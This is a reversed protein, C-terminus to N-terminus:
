PRARRKGGHSQWCRAPLRRCRWGPKCRRPLRSPLATCDVTCSLLTAAGWDWRESVMARAENLALDAQGHAFLRECFRAMLIRATTVQLRERMALVLPVGAEVLAQALPGFSDFAARAASECAALVILRPPSALASVAQVLRATTVPDVKGDDDELYLVAGAPTVRGHCLLYAVDAEAWAATLAALVPSQAGSIFATEACEPRDFLSQAAAIEAQDIPDLGFAPLDPPSAAGFM